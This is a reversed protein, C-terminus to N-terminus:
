WDLGPFNKLQGAEYLAQISLGEFSTWLSKWSQAPSILGSVQSITTNMKNNTTGLFFYRTGM